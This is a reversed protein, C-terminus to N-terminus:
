KVGVDLEDYASNMLSRPCLIVCTVLSDGSVTIEIGVVTWQVVSQSGAKATALVNRVFSVLTEGTAGLDHHQM